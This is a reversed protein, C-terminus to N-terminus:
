DSAGRVQEQDSLRTYRSSFHFPTISFAGYFSTCTSATVAAHTMGAVTPLGSPTFDQTLAYQQCRSSWVRLDMPFHAFGQGGLSLCLTLDFGEKTHINITICFIDVMAKEKPINCGVSHEGM